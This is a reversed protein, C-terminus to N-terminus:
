PFVQKLLGPTCDVTSYSNRHAITHFALAGEPNVSDALESFKDIDKIFKGGGVKICKLHKESASHLGLVQKEQFVNFKVGKEELIFISTNKQSYILMEERTYQSIM